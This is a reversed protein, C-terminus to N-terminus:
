FVMSEEWRWDDVVIWYEAMVSSARGVYSTSPLHSTAQSAMVVTTDRAQSNAKGSARRPTQPPSSSDRRAGAASASATVSAVVRKEGRMPLHASPWSRRKAARTERANWTAPVAQLTPATSLMADSSVAPKRFQSASASPPADTSASPPTTVRPPGFFSQAGASKSPSASPPASDFVVTARDFAAWTPSIRPGKRPAVAIEDRPGTTPAPRTPPRAAAPSSGACSM